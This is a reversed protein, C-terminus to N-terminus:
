HAPRHAALQLRHLDRAAKKASRRRGACVESPDSLRPIIASCPMIEAIISAPDKIREALQDFDNWGNVILGTAAKSQDGRAVHPKAISVHRLLAAASQPRM